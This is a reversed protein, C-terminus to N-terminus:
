LSSLDLVPDFLVSPLAVNSPMWLNYSAYCHSLTEIMLDGEKNFSFIRIGTISNKIRIRAQWDTIWYLKLIANHPIHIAQGLKLIRELHRASLNQEEHIELILKTSREDLEKKKWGPKRIPVREKNKVWYVWVRKVTSPSIKLNAAISRTCSNHIKQSNHLRDKEKNTKSVQQTQGHAIRPYIVEFLEPSRV